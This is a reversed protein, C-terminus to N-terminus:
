LCASPDPWVFDGCSSFPQEVDIRDFVERKMPKVAAVVGASSERVSPWDAVSLEVNAEEEVFGWLKEPTLLGAAL